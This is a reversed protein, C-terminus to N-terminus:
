DNYRMEDDTYFELDEAEAAVIINNAEISVNLEVGFYKVSSDAYDRLVDKFYDRLYDQDDTLSTQIFEIDEQSISGYQEELKSISLTGKAYIDAQGPDDPTYWDYSKMAPEFIGEGDYKMNDCIFQVVEEKLLFHSGITDETYLSSNYDHEEAAIKRLTKRLSM